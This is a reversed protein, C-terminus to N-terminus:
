RINLYEVANKYMIRELESETIVDRVLKLYDRASSLASLVYPYDVSWCIHNIGFTSIMTRFAVIDWIGSLTVWVQSKLVVSPSRKLNCKESFSDLRKFMTTLMEGNHGIIIKLNPHKDFVGGFIMRIIHLGCEYHWGLGALSLINAADISLNKTSYYYSDKVSKPCPGPHIYIPVDLEEAKTFIPEFMEDDLFKNNQTGSILAGVFGLEKVCRNLEVAALIPVQTPLHAFGRFQKPNPSEKIANYIANNISVAYNVGKEGELTDAGRSPMSLVQIATQTTKMANLRLEGVEELRTTVEPDIDHNYQPSLQSQIKEFHVHEELGIGYVM